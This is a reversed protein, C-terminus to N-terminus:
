VFKQVISTSRLIRKCFEQLIRETDYRWSFKPNPKTFLIGFNLELAAFFLFLIEYM